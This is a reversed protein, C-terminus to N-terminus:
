IRDRISEEIISGKSLTGWTRAHKFNNKQVKFSSPYSSQTYFGPDSNREKVKM